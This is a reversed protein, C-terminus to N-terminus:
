ELREPMLYSAAFMAVTVVAAAVEPPLTIGFFYNIAWVAVTGLAGIAAGAQVKTTPVATPQNQYPM